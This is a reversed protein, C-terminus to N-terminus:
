RKCNTLHTTKKLIFQKKTEFSKEELTMNVSFNELDTEQNDAIIRIFAETMWPNCVLVPGLTNTFVANKIQVGENTDRGNNGYGYNLKGFPEDDGTLRFDAMQIQNGIIEMQSGNLNCSFYLDDGYVAKNETTEVDIIGLGRVVSGDDRRIDNGWLAMSTGTVLM